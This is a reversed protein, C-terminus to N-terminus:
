LLDALEQLPIPQIVADGLGHLLVFHVADSERKKDKRVADMLESPPVPCQVPLGLRELLDRIREAAEPELLGRQVSLGAALVMGISVAEGHSIHLLPELAHGFTHGFNLIRRLGSEKEDATVVASKIAVSDAVIREVAAPQLELVAEANREMFNLLDADRILAHKVVEALGCLVEGRPLTRLVQPDCIVFEPQSFTGVLNKYGRFNVGNKGGVSADVQALLSTAVFGFRMGRMYTSAAFGAIDCAVGGGIGVVFTSRDAEGALLAEYIREVNALAKAAEGVGVSVVAAGRPFASEYLRRVNDDTLVVLRRHPLYRGLNELQEGVYITSQGTATPISFTQM